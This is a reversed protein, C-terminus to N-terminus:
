SVRSFDIEEGCGMRDDVTGQGVFRRFSVGIHFNHDRRATDLVLLIRWRVNQESSMVILYTTMRKVRKLERHTHTGLRDTLWLLKQNNYSQFNNNNNNSM